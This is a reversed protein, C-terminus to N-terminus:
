MTIVDCLKKYMNLTAFISCYGHANNASASKYLADVTGCQMYTTSRIWDWGSFRARSVLLM